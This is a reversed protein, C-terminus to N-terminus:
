EAEVVHRPARYFCCGDRDYVRYQFGTLGRLAANHAAHEAIEKAEELGAVHTPTGTFDHGEQYKLVDHTATATWRTAVTSM